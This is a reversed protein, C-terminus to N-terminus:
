PVKIAQASSSPCSSMTRKRVVLKFSSFAALVLSLVTANRLPTLLLAALQDILATGYPEHRAARARESRRNQSLIGVMSMGSWGPQDSMAMRRARVIRAPAIM